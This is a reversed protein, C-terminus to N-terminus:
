EVGGRASQGSLVGDDVLAREVMSDTIRFGRHAWYAAMGRCLGRRTAELRNRGNKSDPELYAGEAWENWANLFILPAQEASRTMTQEVISELWSQYVEPSSNVCIHARNMRRPTNDWAPMVGRYRIYPPQPQEIQNRAVKLYDELYGQFKPNIGEFSSPKILERRTHPPFDVAADFGYPRPDTIGFSQVAALHIAPIGESACTNRWLEAAAQADPLLDVRYVLLLPANGIRIYRPDRMVPIVDRIFHEAYGTSYDQKMLITDDSGDWRRTWNENAWCICFPYDPRGRTLMQELPRELLRHGDFWYYYFCFGHIGHAKALDTQRELVIPDSLDYYGLDSPIQPQYHGTFNPAARKVNTWETFGEGWWADNEPIAHFQPLYFAILKAWWDKRDTESWETRTRIVSELTAKHLTKSTPTSITRLVEAYLSKISTAARAWRLERLAFARGAAGIRQRRSPSHLLPELKEAIELAHGSHLLVCDVDDHLFRGINTEPLVVPRGSVLFEPLKSPFRYDNFDGARGPQILVDATAVLKPIDDRPCFGLDIVSGQKRSEKYYPIEVQNYGTKVLTLPYGRRRLAAVALVLSTVEAVNSSHVAGNYVAMLDSAELGLRKRLVPDPTMQAFATDFGPWFVVGPVHEPKFELLRDMLVTMGSANSLFKPYHVPHSRHSPVLQDILPLPLRGLELFSPGALEDAVIIEENDELHVLYPIAYHQSLTETLRRVLERPTWAHVLDPGRGDAFVLPEGLAADHHLVRFRATGHSRVTGPDNPVLVISEVGLANLENAISFVHMASNGQFDCHSVFVINM